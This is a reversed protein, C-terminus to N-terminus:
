LWCLKYGDQHKPKFTCNGKAKHLCKLCDALLCTVFTRGQRGGGAVSTRIHPLM